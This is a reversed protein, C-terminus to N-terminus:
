KGHSIFFLKYYANLPAASAECAKAPPDVLTTAMQSPVGLRHPLMAGLLSVVPFALMWTKYSIQVWKVSRPLHVCHGNHQGPSM